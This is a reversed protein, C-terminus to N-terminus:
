GLNNNDNNDHFPTTSSNLVFKGRLTLKLLNIAHFELNVLKNRLQNLKDKSFGPDHLKSSRSNYTCFCNWLYVCIKNILYARISTLQLGIFKPYYSSYASLFFPELNAYKVQNNIKSSGIKREKWQLSMALDWPVIPGLCIMKKSISFRTTVCVMLALM